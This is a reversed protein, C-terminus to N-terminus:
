HSSNAHSSSKPIVAKTHIVGIDSDLREEGRQWLDTLADLPRKEIPRKKENCTNGRM